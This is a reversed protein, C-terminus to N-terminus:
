SPIGSKVATYAGGLAAALATIAKITKEFSSIQDADTSKTGAALLIASVTVALSDRSLRAGPLVHSLMGATANGAVFALSVSIIFTATLQWSKSDAPLVPGGDLLWVIFSAGLAALAGAISGAAFAGGVGLRLRWFMDYGFPVGVAACILQVFLRSLGFQFLSFYHVLIITLAPVIIYIGIIHAAVYLRWFLLGSSPIEREREKSLSLSYLQANNLEIKLKNVENSLERVQELLPRPIPFTTGVFNAFSQKM